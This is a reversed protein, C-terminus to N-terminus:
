VLNLTTIKVPRSFIAIPVLLITSMTLVRFHQSLEFLNKGLIDSGYLPSYPLSIIIFVILKLYYSVNQKQQITQLFFYLLYSLLPIVLLFNYKQQHPMILPILLLFYSFEYFIQLKNKIRQFPLSRLFFLSVLLFFLRAIQIITSVAQENLDLVHRKQSMEGVTPLLYVPILASLSHPGIGAEFMHQKQSPNIIKWWEHILFANNAWGIFLAPLFLLAVLTTLTVAIAKFYGRYFLYPLLIIPMIKINIAIGLLLGAWFHKGNLILQFSEVSAWIIFFTIQILAVNYIIFQLSYFLVAIFWVTKLNNQAPSFSFFNIIIKSSRYLMIYLLIMWFLEAIFFNGTFPILLLAFFVSYFYQLGKAFPPQYINEGNYLKKAAHLYVDFDGGDTATIVSSVVAFLLLLVVQLKKNYLFFAL